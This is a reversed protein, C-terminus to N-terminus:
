GDSTRTQAPINPGLDASAMGWALWFRERQQLMNWPEITRALSPFYVDDVRHTFDSFVAPVKGIDKGARAYLVTFLLMVDRLEITDEFDDEGTFLFVLKKLEFHLSNAPDNATPHGHEGLLANLENSFMAARENAFENLDPEEAFWEMFGQDVESVGAWPVHEPGVESKAISSV